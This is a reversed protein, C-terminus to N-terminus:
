YKGLKTGPKLSYFELCCAARNFQVLKDVSPCNDSAPYESLFLDLKREAAHLHDLSKKVFGGRQRAALCDSQLVAESVKGKGAAHHVAAMKRSAQLKREVALRRHVTMPSGSVNSRTSVGDSDAGSIKTNQKM